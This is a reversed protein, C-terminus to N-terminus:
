QVQQNENLIVRLFIGFVLLYFGLLLAAEMTLQVWDIAYDRMPVLKTIPAILAQMMSAELVFLTLFTLGLSVLLCGLYLGSLGGFLFRKSTGLLRLTYISRKKIIFSRYIALVGIISSLVVIGILVQWYVVQFVQFLKQQRTEGEAWSKLYGFDSCARKLSTALPGVQEVQALRVYVGNPEPQGLLKQAEAAKLYVRPTELMDEIVAVLMVKIPRLEGVELNFEIMFPPSTPRLLNALARNIILPANGEMLEYALEKPTLTVSAHEYNLTTARDFPIVFPYQETEYGIIELQAEAEYVGSALRRSYLRAVRTGQWFRSTAAVEGQATQNQLEAMFSQHAQGPNAGYEFILHPMTESLASTLGFSYMAKIVLLLLIATFSFLGLLVQYLPLEKFIKFLTSHM